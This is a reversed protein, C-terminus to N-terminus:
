AAPRAGPRVLWEGARVVARVRGAPDLGVLDAAAGVTPGVAAPLDLAHIVTHRVCTALAQWAVGSAAAVVQVAEWPSALGGCLRGRRDVARGRVVEGEVTGLRFRSGGGAAAVADSVLMLRQAGLCRWAVALGEPGVHHGDGIVECFLDDRALAAGALGPERHHFPGMANFLHTVYRAGHDVAQGVQAASAASHGLGVVVGRAVAADIVEAAGPLEPALTMLRILGPYQELLGVLWAADPARLHHPPHVGAHRPNLFPGELHLGFFSPADPPPAAAWAAWRDLAARLEAEGCTILTPLFGTVGAACLARLARRHAAPDDRLFDCGGWGNIHPDIAGASWVLDQGEEGEGGPPPGPHPRLSRTGVGKGDGAGQEDRAGEGGGRGSPPSGSAGARPLPPGAEVDVRVWRGAEALLDIAPGDRDLLRVGKLEVTPIAM